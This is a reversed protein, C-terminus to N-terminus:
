EARWDNPLSNRSTLSDQLSPLRAAESRALRRSAAHSSGVGQPWPTAEAAAAGAAVVAVAGAVVAGAVAGVVPKGTAAARARGKAGARASVKAKAVARVGRAADAATAVPPPARALGRRT